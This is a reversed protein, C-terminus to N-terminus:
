HGSQIENESRGGSLPNVVRQNTEGFEGFVDTEFGPAIAERQRGEVGGLRRVSGDGVRARAKEFLVPKDSPITPNANIRLSRPESTAEIGLNSLCQRKRALSM